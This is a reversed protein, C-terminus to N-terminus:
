SIDNTYWITKMNIHIDNKGINRSKLQSYFLLFNNTSSHLSGVPEKKFCDEVCSKQIWRTDQKVSNSSTRWWCSRIGYHLARFFAKVSSQNYEFDKARKRYNIKIPHFKSTAFFFFVNVCRINLYCYKIKHFISITELLISETSLSM